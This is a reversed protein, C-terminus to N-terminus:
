RVGIYNEPNISLMANGRYIGEPYDSLKELARDADNEYVEVLKEKLNEGDVFTLTENLKDLVQFFLLNCQFCYVFVTCYSIGEWKVTSGVEHICLFITYCFAFCCSESAMSIQASSPQM